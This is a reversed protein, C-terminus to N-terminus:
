GAAAMGQEAARAFPLDMRTAAAEKVIWARLTAVAWNRPQDEPVAFYYGANSDRLVGALPNVLEGRLIEDRAWIEPVLGIGLGSVAAKLLTSYFEYRLMPQRAAPEIGEQQFLRSWANAATFHDLLTYRQLDSMHQMGGLRDLLAPAAVLLMERGFLYDLVYGPPGNGEWGRILADSHFSSEDRDRWSLSAFQVDINPHAQAFAAFRTMLWRDGIIAGVRLRVSCSGHAPAQMAQSAQALQELLPRVRQLYDHGAETLVLGRNVRLFLEAGLSEELNRLQKSVAGQTMFLEDAAGTCSLHRAAAEFVRLATTSPLFPRMFGAARAPCQLRQWGLTGAADQAAPFGHLVTVM